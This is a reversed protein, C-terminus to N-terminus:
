CYTFFRTKMSSKIHRGSTRLCCCLYLPGGYDRKKLPWITFPTQEFRNQYFCSFFHVGTTIKLGNERNHPARRALETEFKGITLRLFDRNVLIDSYTAPLRWLEIRLTIRPRVFYGLPSTVISHCVSLDICVEAYTM